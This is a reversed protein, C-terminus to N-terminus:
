GEETKLFNYVQDRVNKAETKTPGPLNLDIYRTQRYVEFDIADMHRIAIPIIYIYMQDDEYYVYAPILWNNLVEQSNMYFPTRGRGTARLESLAENWYITVEYREKDPYKRGIVLADNIIDKAKSNNVPHKKFREITEKRQAEEIEAFKSAVTDALTNAAASTTIEEKTLGTYRALSNINILTHNDAKVWKWSFATLVKMKVKDWFRVENNNSQYSKVAISVKEHGNNLISLRKHKGENKIRFEFNGHMGELNMNDM